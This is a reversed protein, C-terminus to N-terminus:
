CVILLPGSVRGNTQPENKKPYARLFQSKGPVAPDMTAMEQKQNHFILCRREVSVRMPCVSNRHIGLLQWMAWRFPPTWFSRRHQTRENRITLSVPESVM